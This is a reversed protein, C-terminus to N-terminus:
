HHGLHHRKDSDKIQHTRVLLNASEVLTMLFNSDFQFETKKNPSRDQFTM